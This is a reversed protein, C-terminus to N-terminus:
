YFLVRGSENRQWSQAVSWWVESVFTLVATSMFPDNSSWHVSEMSWISDKDMYMAHVTHRTLPHLPHPAHM